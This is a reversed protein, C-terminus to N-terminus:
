KVWFEGYWTYVGPAVEDSDACSFPVSYNTPGIAVGWELWDLVVYAPQGNKSLIKIIPYVEGFSNTYGWEKKIFDPMEESALMVRDTPWDTGVNTNLLVHGSRFRDMTSTAWPQLERAFEPSNRIDKALEGAKQTPSNQIRGLFGAVFICIATLGVALVVTSITLVVWLPRKIKDIKNSM